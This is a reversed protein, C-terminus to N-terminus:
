GFLGLRLRDEGFWRVHIGSKALARFVAEAM